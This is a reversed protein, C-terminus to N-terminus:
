ALLKNQFRKGGGEGWQSNKLEAITTSPCFVTKSKELDIEFQWTLSSGSQSIWFDAIVKKKTLM